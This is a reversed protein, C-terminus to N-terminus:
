YNGKGYKKELQETNAVEDGNFLERYKRRFLKIRDRLYTLVAEMAQDEESSKKTDM